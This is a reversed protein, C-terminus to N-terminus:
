AKFGDPDPSETTESLIEDQTDGPASGTEQEDELVEDPIQPHAKAEAIREDTSLKINRYRKM